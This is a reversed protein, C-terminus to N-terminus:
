TRKKSRARKYGELWAFLADKDEKPLGELVKSHALDSIPLSSEHLIDSMPMNLAGMIATVLHIGPSQTPGNLAKYITSKDGGILVALTGYSLNLEEMRKVIISRWDPRLVDFILKRSTAFRREGYLNEGKNNKM